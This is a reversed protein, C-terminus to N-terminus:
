FEKIKKEKKKKKKRKKKTECVWFFFSLSFLLPMGLTIHMVLSSAVLLPLLRLL